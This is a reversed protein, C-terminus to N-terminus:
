KITNTQIKQVVWQLADEFQLIVHSKNKLLWGNEKNENLYCIYTPGHKMISFRYKENDFYTGLNDKTQSYGSNKIFNYYEKINYM